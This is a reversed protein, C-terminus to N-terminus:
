YKVELRVSYEPFASSYIINAPNSDNIELSGDSTIVVIIINLINRLENQENM